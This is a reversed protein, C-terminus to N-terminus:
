TVKTTLGRLTASPTEGFIARYDAAFRGLESFQFRHAIEAVTTAPDAQRLAARALNLRRLRLYRGPSLGLFEVCCARLTREPVGLAACLEPMSPQRDDQPSLADELRSMVEAHRRRATSNGSAERATLCDALADTFEREFAQAAHADAITQPGTEAFRGARAHLLRLRAAAAPSPRLARGASGRAALQTPPLSALGWRSAGRSWQHMREGCSHVVIDGPRLALGNWVVPAGRGLPFSVFARAPPLVMYAIRALNERAYLLHLHRLELWALSAKFEGRGTLVLSVNVLGIGARYDDSNTFIAKGSVTM